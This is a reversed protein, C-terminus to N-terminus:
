KRWQWMTKWAQVLEQIAQPKPVKDGIMGCQEYAERYYYQVRDWSLMSLERRYQEISENSLPKDDTIVVV